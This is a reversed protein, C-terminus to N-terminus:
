ANHVIIESIWNQNIKMHLKEPFVIIKYEQLHACIMQDNKREKKKQMLFYSSRALKKLGKKEYSKEM